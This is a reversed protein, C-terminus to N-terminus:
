LISYVVKQDIKSCISTLKDWMVKLDELDIINFTIQNNVGKLLM